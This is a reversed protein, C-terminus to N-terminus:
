ARYSGIVVANSLQNRLLNMLADVEVHLDTYTEHDHVIYRGHAVENRVRLLSRDLLNARGEYEEVSIGLRLLIAFLVLSSLNSQTDVMEDRVFRARDARDGTLWEYAELVEKTPGNALSQVRRRAAMAAFPQSLENVRLKRRAVYAVYTECAGKVFGEWHAYLLTAGARLLMEQTPGSAADIELKLRHLEARRWSLEAALADDFQEATAAKM